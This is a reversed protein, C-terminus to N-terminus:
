EGHTRSESGTEPHRGCGGPCECAGEADGYDPHVVADRVDLYTAGEGPAPIGCQEVCRAAVRLDDREGFAPVPDEPLRLVDADPVHEVLEAPVEAHPEIGSRHELLECAFPLLVVLQGIGDLPHIDREGAHDGGGDSEVLLADRELIYRERDLLGREGHEGLDGLARHRVDPLLLDEESPSDSLVATQPIHHLIHGM